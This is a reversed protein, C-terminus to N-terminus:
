PGCSTPKSRRALSDDGGLLEEPGLLRISPDEDRCRKLDDTFGSRSFLLYHLGGVRDAFYTTRGTTDRLRELVNLGVPGSWWKCEGSFSAEDLLRGAVDIDYDKAWIQGVERAATPLVERAFLRAYDRCIWAFIGRMYDDLYPEISHKWM